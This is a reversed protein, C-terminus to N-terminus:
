RRGRRQDHRDRESKAVEALSRVAAVAAHRQEVEVIEAFRVRHASRGRVEADEPQAAVADSSVFHDVHVREFGSTEDWRNASLGVM